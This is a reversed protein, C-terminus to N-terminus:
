SQHYNKGYIPAVNKNFAKEANILIIIHYKDSTKNLHHIVSIQQYQIM